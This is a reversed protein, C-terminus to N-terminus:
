FPAEAKIPVAVDTSGTQNSGTPFIATVTFRLNLWGTQTGAWMHIRYCKTNAPCPSPHNPTDDWRAWPELSSVSSDATSGALKTVMEGTVTTAGSPVIVECFLYDDGNQQLHAKTGYCVPAPAPNVPPPPCNGAQECTPPPPTTCVNQTSNWTNGQIAVCNQYSSCVTSDTIQKGMITCVVIVNCGIVGNNDGGVSISCGPPSTKVPPPKKCGCGKKGKKTTKKSVVAINFCIFPVKLKITTVKGGKKKVKVTLCFAQAGSNKYDPDAFTVNRDVFITGAGFSMRQFHDGYNLKCEKFKGQNVAKRVAKREAANLGALRMAKAARGTNMKRVFDNRAAQGTGQIGGQFLPDGGLNTWSASAPSALAMFAGVVATLVIILRMRPM